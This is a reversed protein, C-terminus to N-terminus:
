VVETQQTLREVTAAVDAVTEWETVDDDPIEIGFAIDCDAAISQRDLSDTGLDACLRTAPGIGHSVGLGLVDAIIAAVNPLHTM